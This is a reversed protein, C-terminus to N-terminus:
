RARATAMAARLERELYAPFAMAAVRRVTEEFAWRPSIRGRQQFQYLTRLEGREKGWRQVVLTNGSLRGKMLFPLSPLRGKGRAKPKARAKDIRKLLAGPKSGAKIAGRATKVGQNLLGEEPVALKRGRTSRKEEGTEHLPMWNSIIPATLVEASTFGYRVIDAKLAPRIRIGKPIFDGHLQFAKKTRNQVQRQAALATKTLASAFAFPFQERALGELQRVTTHYDVKVRIM